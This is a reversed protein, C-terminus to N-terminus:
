EYQTNLLKINYKKILYELLKREKNPTHGGFGQTDASKHVRNWNPKDEFYHLKDFNKNYIDFGHIFIEQYHNALFFMAMLGSSPWKPNFDIVNANIYDEYEVPIFKIKPYKSEIELFNASNFKFKPCVILFFDYENYYTFAKNLHLDNLVWIDCKSGIYKAFDGHKNGDNDILWRNFRVVVDWQSSDIINQNESELVSPGNGIILARSM